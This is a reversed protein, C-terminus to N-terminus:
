KGNVRHPPTTLWVQVIDSNAVAIATAQSYVLIGLIADRNSPKGVSKVDYQTIIQQMGWGVRHVETFRLPIDTNKKSISRKVHDCNVAILKVHKTLM